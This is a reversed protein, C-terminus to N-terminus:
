TEDELWLAEVTQATAIYQELAARPIRIAHGGVRVAPLLGEAIMQYVRKSCVDLYRAARGVRWYEIGEAQLRNGPTRNINRAPKPMSISRTSLIPFQAWARHDCAIRFQVKSEPKFYRQREKPLM